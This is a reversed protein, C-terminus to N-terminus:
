AMASSLRSRGTRRAATLGLGVLGLVMMGWTSPEPVSSGGSFGSIDLHKVEKLGSSSTLVVSTLGASDAVIFHLDADHKLPDFGSVPYTVTGEMTTGSFAELTLSLPTTKVLQVDFLLDTFTHGPTSITLDPFSALHGTASPKITANGNAFDLAATSTFTVAVPGHNTGVSGGSTMSNKADVLFIEQETTTPCSSVPGLNASGHLGNFCVQASAAGTGFCAGATMAALLISRTFKIAM